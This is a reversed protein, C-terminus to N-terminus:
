YLPYYFEKEFNMQGINEILRAARESCALPLVNMGIVKAPFLSKPRSITFEKKGKEFKYTEIKAKTEAKNKGSIKVPYRYGLKSWMDDPLKESFVIKYTLNEGDDSVLELKELHPRGNKEYYNSNLLEQSKGKLEKLLDMVITIFTAINKRYKIFLEQRETELNKFEDSKYIAEIGQSREIERLRTNGDLLINITRTLHYLNRNLKRFPEVFKKNLMGLYKNSIGTDKEEDSRFDTIKLRNSQKVNDAVIAMAEDFTPYKIEFQQWGEVPKFDEELFKMYNRSFIQMVPNRSAVFIIGGGFLTGGVLKLITRRRHNVEKEKQGGDPEDVQLVDAFLVEATHIEDNNKEEQNM